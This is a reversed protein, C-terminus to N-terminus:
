LNANYVSTILIIENNQSNRTVRYARKEKKVHYIYVRYGESTPKNDVMKGGKNLIEDVEQQYTYGPTM